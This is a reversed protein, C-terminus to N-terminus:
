RWSLDMAQLEIWKYKPPVSNNNNIIIHVPWKNVLGIIQFYKHRSNNPSKNSM